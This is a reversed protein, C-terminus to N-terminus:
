HAQVSAHMHACELTKKANKKAFHVRPHVCSVQSMNELIPSMQQPVVCVCDVHRLPGGTRAARLFPGFFKQQRIICVASKSCDFLLRCVPVHKCPQSTPPEAGDRIRTFSPMQPQALMHACVCARYCARVCACYCACYCVRVCAFYCSLMINPAYSRVRLGPHM